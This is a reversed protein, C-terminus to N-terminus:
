RIVVQKVAQNAPNQKHAQAQTTDESGCHAVCEQIDKEVNTAENKLCNQLIFDRWTTKGKTSTLIEFDSDEFTLRLEKM